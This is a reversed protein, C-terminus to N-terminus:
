VSTTFFCIFSPMCFSLPMHFSLPMRFSLPMCFSSSNIICFYYFGHSNVYFANISKIEMIINKMM